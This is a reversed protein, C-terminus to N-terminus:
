GWTMMMVFEVWLISFFDNPMSTNDLPDSLSSTVKISEDCIPIDMQIMMMM